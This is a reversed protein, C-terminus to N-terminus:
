DNGEPQLHCIKRHINVTKGSKPDNGVGLGNFTKLLASNKQEMETTIPTNVM